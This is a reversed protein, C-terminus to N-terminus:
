RREIEELKKLFMIELELRRNKEKEIKLEEQLKEEETMEEAKKRKGRGDELGKIGKEKYKKVWRYIQYYSVRNREAVEKYSDDHGLYDKVIEIREQLTTERGKNMLEGGGKVHIKSQEHGNYRKIWTRLTHEGKIKYRRCIKYLSDEGNLYEHVAQKKLEVPYRKLKHCDFAESGMCQYNHIWISITTINVEYEKALAPMTDKNSLYRECAEIKEGKNHKSRRM